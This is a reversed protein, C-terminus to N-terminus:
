HTQLDRLDAPQIEVRVPSSIRDTFEKPPAKTKHGSIKGTALSKNEPVTYVKGDIPKKM